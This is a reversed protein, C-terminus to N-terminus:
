NLSCLLYKNTKFFYDFVKYRTRKSLLKKKFSQIEIESKNFECLKEKELTKLKLAKLQMRYRIKHNACM